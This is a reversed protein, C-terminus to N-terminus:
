RSPAAPPKEQILVKFTGGMGEPHVLSQIAASTKVRSTPDITARVTEIIRDLGNELLFQSQTALPRAQLGWREGEKMLVSFNLHATLDQDGCHDYLQKSTQHGRHALATGEARIESYLERSEYGYDITLILGAELARGMREMCERAALHAEGACAEAPHEGLWLFYDLLDRGAPESIEEFDPGVRIEHLKGGKMVVRRVPLADFFENSVIFGRISQPRWPHSAVAEFRKWHPQNLRQAMKLRQPSKEIATYHLQDYFEPVSAQARDLFFKALKGTGAGPEVITVRERPKFLRTWERYVFQFLIEAFIPHVDASTYYDREALNKSYYGDKPDYLAREMFQAFDMAGQRAIEAQIRERLASM